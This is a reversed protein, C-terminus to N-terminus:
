LYANLKAAHGASWTRLLRGDATRMRSLLFDAARAATAAHEEKDFAQAATAFASIMLANWSTLVKDDLGPRVRKARETLLKQRCEALFGRLKPTDIGHLRGLQAFTKTRHLINKPVGPAHPDAWNGDSEVGYCANFLEADTKGLVREIESESWVYFRGEEGESDADLTSYFPGEPSTMERRAWALTEEVVDRYFPEGTAQYAEVYAAALLANDYLMKEFHPVLWRDDTSYRHFGGGLQDYMGGRAMHDLTKKVMELSGDDGFRRWLRLLLRIEMPHPFKPAQGWGGYTHDFIRTLKQGAQRLVDDGFQAPGAELRMAAQVHETLHGAQEDIVNRQKQWAEAIHLLLRRFSPLGHRDAPPFYTGGYFPKLDPTLFVSMPWGGRQTLIQVATMYIQDLDPREERDVKISIFHDNLIKGIEPDEFSEHEMVHCWHCASYGISLFIPRDLEKAKRLAEDGWPHWDVPNHAHQRLYPSTERALRNQRTNQPADKATM